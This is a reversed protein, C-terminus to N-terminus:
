TLKGKETRLTPNLIVCVGHYQGAVGQGQEQDWACATEVSGPHAIYIGSMSGNPM